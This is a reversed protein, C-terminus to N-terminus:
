SLAPLPNIPQLVAHQCRRPASRSRGTDGWGMGIERGLALALHQHPRDPSEVSDGRAQVLARRPRM